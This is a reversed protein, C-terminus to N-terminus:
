AHLSIRVASALRRGPGRPATRVGLRQIGWRRAGRGGEWALLCAGRGNPAERCGNRRSGAWGTGRPRCQSCKITGPSLLVIEGSGFLPPALPASDCVFIDHAGAGALAGVPPRQWSCATLQDEDDMRRTRKTADGTAACSPSFCGRSRSRSCPPVGEGRVPRM